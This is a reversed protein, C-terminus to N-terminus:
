QITATLEGVGEGNRQAPDSVFELPSTNALTDLYERVERASQAVSPDPDNLLINLLAVNEPVPQARLAGMALLRFKPDSDKVLLAVLPHTPETHELWLAINEPKYVSTDSQVKSELLIETAEDNRPIRLDRLVCFSETM